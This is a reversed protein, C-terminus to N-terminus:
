SECIVININKFLDNLYRSSTITIFRANNFKKVGNNFSIIKKASINQYM